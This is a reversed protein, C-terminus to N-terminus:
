LVSEGLLDDLRYSKTGINVQIKDHPQTAELRINHEKMQREFAAMLMAVPTM